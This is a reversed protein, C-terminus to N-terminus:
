SVSDFAVFCATSMVSALMVAAVLAATLVAARALFYNPSGGPIRRRPAPVPKAYTLDFRRYEDGADANTFVISDCLM